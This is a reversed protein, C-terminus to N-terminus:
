SPLHCWTYDKWAQHFQHRGGVVSGTTTDSANPTHVWALKLNVLHNHLLLSLPLEQKHINKWVLHLSIACMWVWGHNMAAHVTIHNCMGSCESTHVTITARGLTQWFNTLYARYYKCMWSDTLYYDQVYYIYIVIVLPIKLPGSCNSYIVSFLGHFWHPCREICM